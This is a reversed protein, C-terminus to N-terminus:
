RGTEIFHHVRRELATVRKLPTKGYQYERKLQMPWYEEYFLKEGEDYELDAVRRAKAVIPMDKDKAYDPDAALAVFSAFCGTTVCENIEDDAIAESLECLFSVERHDWGDIRVWADMSFNVAHQKALEVGKPSTPDHKRSRKSQLWSMM